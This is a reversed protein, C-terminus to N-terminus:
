RTVEATAREAEIVILWKRLMDGGVRVKGGTASSLRSAVEEWNAPRVSRRQDMAWEWLGGYGAERLLVDALMAQSSM